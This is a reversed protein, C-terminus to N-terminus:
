SLQRRRCLQWALLGVEQGEQHDQWHGEQPLGEKGPSQHGEQNGYCDVGLLPTREHPSHEKFAWSLFKAANAPLQGADIEMLGEAAAMDHITESVM